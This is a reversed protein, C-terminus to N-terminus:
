VGSVDSNGGEEKESIFQQIYSKVMFDSKQEIFDSFNDVAISIDRSINNLYTTRDYSMRSMVSIGSSIPPLGLLERTKQVGGNADDVLGEDQLMEMYAPLWCSSGDDTKPEGNDRIYLIFKIAETNDACKLLKKYFGIAEIPITDVRRKEVYVGNELVSYEREVDVVQQGNMNWVKVEMIDGM